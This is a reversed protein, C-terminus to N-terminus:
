AVKDEDMTFDSPTLGDAKLQQNLVDVQVDTSMLDESISEIYMEKLAYEFNPISEEVKEVVEEIESTKVEHNIFRSYNVLALNINELVHKHNSYDVEKLKLLYVQSNKLSNVLAENQLVRKSILLVQINRILTDFINSNRAAEREKEVRLKRREEELAAQREKAKNKREIEMIHNKILKAVTFTIIWMFLFPMFFFVRFMSSFVMFMLIITFPNHHSRM